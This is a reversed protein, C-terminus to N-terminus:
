GLEERMKTLNSVEEQSSEVPNKVFKGTLLIRFQERFMLKRREKAYYNDYTHYKKGNVLIPARLSFRAVSSAQDTTQTLPSPASAM